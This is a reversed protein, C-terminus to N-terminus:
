NASFNVEGVNSHSTFTRSVNPDNPDFNISGSSSQDLHVVGDYDSTSITISGSYVQREFNEVEETIVEKGLYQGDPGYKEITKTTRKVKRTDPQLPATYPEYPYPYWNNGVDDFTNNPCTKCADPNTYPLTCNCAKM